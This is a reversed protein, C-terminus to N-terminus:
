SAAYPGPCHKATHKGAGPPESLLSDAQLAPSRPETQPNPLYGPPPCPLGSRYEQFYGQVSSYAQFYAQFIGHVSSGPPSCDCPQLTLCSQAVLCGKRKGRWTGRSGPEPERQSPCRSSSGKAREREPPQRPQKALTGLPPKALIRPSPHHTDYADLPTCSSTRRTGEQFLTVLAKMMSTPGRMLGPEHSSLLAHGESGEAAWSSALLPHLSGKGQAKRERPGEGNVM